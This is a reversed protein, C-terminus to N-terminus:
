KPNGKQVQWQQLAQTGDHLLEHYLLQETEVDLILDSGLVRGWWVRVFLLKENMWRAEGPYRCDAQVLTLQLAPSRETFVTIARNGNAPADCSSPEDHFWYGGNPSLVKPAMRSEVNSHGLKVRNRYEPPAPSEHFLRPAIWKDPTTHFSQACAALGAILALGCRATKM